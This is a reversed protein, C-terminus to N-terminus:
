AARGRRPPLVWIDQDGGMEGGNKVIPPDWADEGGWGSGRM